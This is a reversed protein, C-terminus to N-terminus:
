PKEYMESTLLHSSNKIQKHYVMQEPAKYTSDWVKDVVGLNQSIKWPVGLHNDAAYGILLYVILGTM